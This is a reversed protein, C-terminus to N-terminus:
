KPVNSQGPAAWKVQRRGMKRESLGSAVSLPENLADVLGVRCEASLFAGRDEIKLGCWEGAGRASEAKMLESMELATNL